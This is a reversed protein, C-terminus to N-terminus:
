PRPVPRLPWGAASGADVLGHGYRPDRGQPGLDRATARLRTAKDEGLGEAVLLGAVGAVLPASFSTGSVEAYSGGPVTTLIDMGPAVVDLWPGHSSFYALRNSRDTAGVSLVEPYAAPYVTPNGWGGYNGASAVVLVGRRNAAEVARRLPTFDQTGGSSVNIV